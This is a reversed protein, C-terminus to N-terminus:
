SLRPQQTLGIVMCSTLQDMECTNRDCMLRTSGLSVRAGCTDGNLLKVTACRAVQVKIGWECHSSKQRAHVYATLQREIAEFVVDIRLLSPLLHRRLSVRLEQMRVVMYQM